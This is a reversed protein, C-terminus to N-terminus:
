SHLKFEILSTNKKYFILVYFDPIQLICGHGPVGHGIKLKRLIIANKFPIFLEGDKSCGPIATVLCTHLYRSPVQEDQSYRPFMRPQLGGRSWGLFMRPHGYVLGGQCLIRPCRPYRVMGPVDQSSGYVLGGQCLIRPCRPYRVMGPVDQSSRVSSGGPM